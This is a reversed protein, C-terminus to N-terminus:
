FSDPLCPLAQRSFSFVFISSSIFYINFKFEGPSEVPSMVGFTLMHWETSSNSPNANTTRGKFALLLDLSHKCNWCWNHNSQYFTPRCKKAHIEFLGLFKKKEIASLDFDMYFYEREYDLFVM